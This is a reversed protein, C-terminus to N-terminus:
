IQFVLDAQLNHLLIFKESLLHEGDLLERMLELLLLEPILCEM